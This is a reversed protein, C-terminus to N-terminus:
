GKVKGKITGDEIAIGANSITHLATDNIPGKLSLDRLSVLQSIPGILEM